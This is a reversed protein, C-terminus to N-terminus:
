IFGLVDYDQHGDMPIRKILKILENISKTQTSATEGLKSLGTQLTNFIKEFVKKHSPSILREFANLAKRVDSVDFDSGKELWTSFLNEYAIFYGISEKTFDVFEKDSENMGKIDEDSMGQEKFFRLEKESLYRYFIFGLIYDKYENAEIKSRMENASKWITAALQRKNM